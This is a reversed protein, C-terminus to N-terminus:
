PQLYTWVGLMSLITAIMLHSSLSQEILNTNQAARMLVFVFEGIQSLMMGTILAVRLPFRLVLGVLVIIVFKGVLIAIFLGFIPLPAQFLEYPDLLMGVSIFFLSALVERFPILDSLAQHRYDSGAVVLGGLFAGLPELFKGADERALLDAITGLKGRWDGDPDIVIALRRAGDGFWDAGAPPLPLNAITRLRLALDRGCARM